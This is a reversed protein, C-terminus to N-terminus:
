SVRISYAMIWVVANFSWKDAGLQDRMKAFPCHKGLLQQQTEIAGEMFGQLGEQIGVIRGLGQNQHTQENSVTQLSDMTTQYEILSCRRLGIEVNPNSNTNDFLPTWCALPWFQSDKSFDSRAKVYCHYRQSASYSFIV